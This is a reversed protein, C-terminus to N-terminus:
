KNFTLFLFVLFTHSFQEFKVIFVDTVDNQHREQWSQVYKM